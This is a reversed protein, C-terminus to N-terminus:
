ATLARIRDDDMASTWSVASRPAPRPCASTPECISRRTNSAAGCGGSSCNDRWAGKGDMSIAIGNGALVGTFAARQVAILLVLLARLMRSGAFPFSLHLRDLGCSRLSRVPRPLYCASGRSICLVKAQKIIPLDHAREVHKASLLGAKSLAGELVDAAGGELQAKWTTIQNPHLDFQEALQAITRDGKLAAPAVKAKFAPTHNRRPRRYM